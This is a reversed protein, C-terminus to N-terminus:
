KALRDLTRRGEQTITFVDDVPKGVRRAFKLALLLYAAALRVPEEDSVGVSTRDHQGLDILLQSVQVSFEWFRNEGMLM